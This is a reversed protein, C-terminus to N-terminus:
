MKVEDSLAHRVNEVDYSKIQGPKEQPLNDLEEWPILCAHRKENPRKTKFEAREKATLESAPLLTWGHAYSFAIWRNHEYRALFELTQTLSAGSMTYLKRKIPIDLALARNSAELYTGLNNWSTGRNSKQNYNKNVEKAIMDNSSDILSKYNILNSEVDVIKLNTCKDLIGQAGAYSEHFVVVIQPRNDFMALSDYVRSLKIAIDINKKTDETSVIIQNWVKANKRIVDFYQDSNYEANLFGVENSQAFHPAETLFAGRKSDLNDDIVLAEFFKDGKNKTLFASNEYSLLLFEQGITSFGIVCQRFPKILYPLSSKEFSNTKTLIDIPSCESLFSRVAIEEKSVICTDIYDARFDRFRELDNDLFASVRVSCGKNQNAEVWKNISTVRELNIYQDDPLLVVTYKKNRKLNVLFSKDEVRCTNYLECDNPMDDTPIYVIRPKIISKKMYDDVLKKADEVKGVIITQNKAHLVKLRLKAQRFVRYFITLLLRQANTIAAAFVVLWAQAELWWDGSVNAWDGVDGDFTLNQVTNYLSHGIFPVSSEATLGQTVARIYFHAVFVFFFNYALILYTRHKPKWKASILYVLALVIFYVLLLM